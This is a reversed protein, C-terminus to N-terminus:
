LVKGDVDPNGLVPEGGGTPTKWSLSGASAGATLVKGSNTTSTAPVHLNGDSTPHTYATAGDAVNLLTRVQAASLIEPVGTAATTRGIISDTAMDAMKALTIAKDTVTTATDASNVRGDFNTDYVAIFMDAAGGSWYALLNWTTVGDGVKLKKTDTEFGLEGSSLLTNAATWQAATGRRQQIVTSM